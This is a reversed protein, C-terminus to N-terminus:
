LIELAELIQVDPERFGDVQDEAFVGRTFRRNGLGDGQGQGAPNISLVAAAAVATGQHTMSRLLEGDGDGKGLIANGAAQLM